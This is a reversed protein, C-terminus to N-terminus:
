TPEAIPAAEHTDDGFPAPVEPLSAYMLATFALAASASGSLRSRARDSSM